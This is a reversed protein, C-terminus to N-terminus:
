QFSFQIQTQYAMLILESIFLVYDTSCFGNLLLRIHNEYVYPNNVINVYYEFKIEISNLVDWCQITTYIKARM